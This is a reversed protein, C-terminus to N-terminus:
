FDTNPWSEINEYCKFTNKNQRSAEIEDDLHKEWKDQCAIELYEKDKVSLENWNIDGYTEVDLTKGSSNYYRKIKGSPVVVYADCKYRKAYNIDNDSFQESNPHTHIYAVLTADSSIQMNINPCSHPSELQVNTYYYLSDIQVIVGSYEFRVYMGSKYYNKAFDIAALNASIYGGYIAQDYNVSSVLHSAVSYDVYEDALTVMYFKGTSVNGREKVFGTPDIGNAPDGNCFSYRNLTLANSIDGHLKDANVFRRLTPSYYRARMYILGNDETLVGDRGNYLFQTNNSGSHATLKGYTDYEFTDTVTGSANTIAVTSGRYDFHYTKFNGSTEEGILGLGYVYKTYVIIQKM